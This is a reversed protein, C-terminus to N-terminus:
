NEAVTTRRRRNRNRETPKVKAAAPPKQQTAKVLAAKVSMRTALIEIILDARGSQMVRIAANVEKPDAGMDAALALIRQQHDM